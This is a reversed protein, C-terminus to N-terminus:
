SALRAIKDALLEVIPRRCGDIMDVDWERLTSPYLEHARRIGEQVEVHVPAPAAPARPPQPRRNAAPPAPKTDAAPPGWELYGDRLAVAVAAAQTPVELAALIRAIHAKVTSSSLM